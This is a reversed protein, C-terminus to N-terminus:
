KKSKGREGLIVERRMEGIEGERVSIKGKKGEKM